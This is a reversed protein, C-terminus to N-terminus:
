YFGDSVIDEQHQLLPDIPFSANTPQISALDHWNAVGLAHFQSNQEFLLHISSVSCTLEPRSQTASPNRIRLWFWLNVQGEEMKVQHRDGVM